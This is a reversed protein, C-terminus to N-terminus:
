SEVAGLGVHLHQDLRLPWQARRPTFQTEHVTEFTRGLSAVHESHRLGAQIRAIDDVPEVNAGATSGLVKAVRQVVGTQCNVQSHYQLLEAVLVARRRMQHSIREPPIQHQLQGTLQAAIRPGENSADTGNGRRNIQRCTGPLQCLWYIPDILPTEQLSHPLAHCGRATEGELFDLVGAGYVLKVVAKRPGRESKAAGIMVVLCLRRTLKQFADADRREEDLGAVIDENRKFDVFM